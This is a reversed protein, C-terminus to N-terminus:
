ADPTKRMDLRGAAEDGADRRIALLPLVGLAM